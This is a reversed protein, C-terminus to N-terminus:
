SFVNDYAALSLSLSLNRVNVNVEEWESDADNDYHNDHVRLQLCEFIQSDTYVKFEHSKKATDYSTFRGIPHVKSRTWHKSVRYTKKLTTKAM